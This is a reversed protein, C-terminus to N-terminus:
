VEKKPDASALLFAMHKDSTPVAEAGCQRGDITAEDEDDEPV